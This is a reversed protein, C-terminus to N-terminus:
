HISRRLRQIQHVLVYASSEITATRGYEAERKVTAFNGDTCARDFSNMSIRAEALTEAHDKFLEDITAGIFLLRGSIAGENSSEKGSSCWYKIALDRVEFTVVKIVDVDADRQESVRKRSGFINDIFSELVKITGASVAGIVASLWWSIEGDL